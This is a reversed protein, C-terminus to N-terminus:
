VQFKRCLWFKREKKRFLPLFLHTRILFFTHFFDQASFTATVSKFLLLEIFKQIKGVFFLFFAAKTLHSYIKLYVDVLHERSYTIHFHM